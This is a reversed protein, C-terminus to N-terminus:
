ITVPGYSLQNSCRGKLCPTTPELGVPGEMNTFEPMKTDTKENKYRYVPSIKPIYINKDPTLQIGDPFILQKCVRMTAKDLKWWENKLNDLFDYAFYIFENYDKEFDQAEAAIKEAENIKINLAQVEAKLDDALDPNDVLSNLIRSKREQLSVVTGTAIRAREIRNQEYTRWVKRASEKLREKQLSTPVLSTLEETLQKHLDEQRLGINCDRCRYRRYRKYGKKEGNNQWYGVLRPYPNESLLCRACEAENSLPFEPNNKHVVFRKGKNKVLAILVEHEERTIMPKHLGQVERGLDWDAFVLLGCYYPDIMLNKWRYTDIKRGGVSRPGYNKTRLGDGLAQKLGKDVTLEGSAMAKFARKMATWNPEDPIHLGPIDSKKYGTHPNSPYYGAYIRAKQKLPTKTIREQNSQQARYIEILEDFVAREDDPDIDPRKAFVLRVGILKFEMKWWYYEDISRMFRDVEDVILHKVSKYQKCYDHMERLDKRTINKGKRSSATVAWIKVLDANIVKAANQVSEIQPDLNGDLEQAKTSVRCLAIAKNM